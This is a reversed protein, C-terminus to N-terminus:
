GEEAVKRLLELGNLGPMQMDVLMLSIQEHHERILDLAPYSGYAVLARYGLTPLISSATVDAIQRNDDVVLIVEQSMILVRNVELIDDGQVEVNTHLTFL